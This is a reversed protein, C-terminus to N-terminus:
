DLKITYFKGNIVIITTGDTKEGLVVQNSRGKEDWCYDSCKPNKIEILQYM